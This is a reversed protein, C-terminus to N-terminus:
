KNTLQDIDDLDKYRGAAKKSQILHNFHIFRIPLDDERYWKAQEFTEKFNLGKVKVLIEIRVPPRGFGWVDFRNNMFDDLSMEHM